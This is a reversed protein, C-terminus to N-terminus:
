RGGRVDWGYLRVLLYLVSVGLAATLVNELM